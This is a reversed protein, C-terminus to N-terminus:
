KNQEQSRFQEVLHLLREPIPQEVVESYYDRLLKGLGGHYKQRLYIPEKERHPHQDRTGNENAATDAAPQQDPSATKAMVGHEKAPKQSAVGQSRLDVSVGVRQKPEM